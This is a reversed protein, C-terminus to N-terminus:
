MSVRILVLGGLVLFGCFLRYLGWVFVIFCGVVFEVLVVVLGFFVRFM